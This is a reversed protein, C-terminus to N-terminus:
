LAKNWKEEENDVTAVDSVLLRMAELPPTSAFLSDDAGDRFEQGVLRSRLMPSGKDGKNVDIWRTGVIKINRAMAEKRTIKIWVGM